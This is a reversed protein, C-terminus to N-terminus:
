QTNTIGPVLPTSPKTTTPSGEIAPPQGMNSPPPPNNQGTGSGGMESSNGPGMQVTPKANRDVGIVVSALYYDAEEKINVFSEHGEGSSRLVSDRTNVTDREVTRTNYPSVNKYIYESLADPFYLQGTLMNM